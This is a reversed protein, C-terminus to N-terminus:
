KIVAKHKKGEPDHINGIVEMEEKLQETNGYGKLKARFQCCGDDCWEVILPKSYDAYKVLDGEYIAQGKCDKLGTRQMLIFRKAKNGHIAKGTCTYFEGFLSLRLAIRWRKDIKDWCRFKIERGM